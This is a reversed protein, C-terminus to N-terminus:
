SLRKVMDQYKEMANRVESQSIKSEEYRAKRSLLYLINYNKATVIDLNKGVDKRRESHSTPHIGGGLPMKALQLDVLHLASYFLTTIEWDLFGRSKKTL